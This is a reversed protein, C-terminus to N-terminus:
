LRVHQRKNMSSNPRGGGGGDNLEFDDMDDGGKRKGGEAQSFSRKREEEAVQKAEEKAAEVDVDDGLAVGLRQLADLIAPVLDGPSLGVETKEAVTGAEGGQCALIAKHADVDRPGLELRVKVGREEWKRMRRGPLTAVDDDLVVRLRARQLATTTNECARRVREAEHRRSQWLVPLVVVHPTPLKRKQSRSMSGQNTAAAGNRAWQPKRYKKGQAQAQLALKQCARQTERRRREEPDLSSLLDVEASASAKSSRRRKKQQSANQAAETPNVDEEETM